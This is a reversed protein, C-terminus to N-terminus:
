STIGGGGGEKTRASNWGTKGKISISNPPNLKKTEKKCIKNFICNNGELPVKEKIREINEKSFGNVECPLYKDLTKLEKEGCNTCKSKLNNNWKLKEGCNQCKNMTIKRKCVTKGLNYILYDLHGPFLPANDEDIEKM